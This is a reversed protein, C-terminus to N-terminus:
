VLYDAGSGRLAVDRIEHGGTQHLALGALAIAALETLRAADYTRRVRAEQESSVGSPDVTLQLPGSGFGPINEVTLPIQSPSAACVEGLVAVTAAMIEDWLLQPHMSSLDILRVSCEM